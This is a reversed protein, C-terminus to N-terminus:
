PIYKNDRSWKIWSDVADEFTAADKAPNVGTLRELADFWRDPDRKLEIAIFPVIGAGMGLIAIYLPHQYRKALVSLHQTERKWETALGRFLAEDESAGSNVSTSIDVPFQPFVQFDTGSSSTLEEITNM